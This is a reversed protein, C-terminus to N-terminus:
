FQDLELQNVKKIPEVFDSFKTYPAIFNLKVDDLKGHRNKAVILKCLGSLDNGEADTMDFHEKYYDPRFLFIVLDADQEIAGSERLDSLQPRKNTRKETERSLQSLAIVPCNFDKSIQKLGRSIASIEGERNENGEGKMLQLYDVVILDLHGLKAKAKMARSRLTSIILAATDDIIMNALNLDAVEVQKMQEYDLTGRTISQSNIETEGAIMRTVLDKANMELSFVLVAKSKDMAVNKAVQIAFATKGMGPRAAVIILNGKMLGMTVMDLDRFGTSLGPLTKNMSRDIVEAKAQMAIDKVSAMRNGDLNNIINDIVEQGKKIVDFCDTTADFSLRTIESGMRIMERKIWEQKVLHCHYEINAASGVRNTMQSVAYPGGVTEIDGNKTLQSVVTAIDIPHGAGALDICAKFMKQNIDKYFMEERLIGTVVPFMEKEIMLGGIVLEEVAVNQPPLKGPIYFTEESSKLRRSQYTM